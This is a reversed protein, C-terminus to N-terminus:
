PVVGKWETSKNGIATRIKPHTELPHQRPSALYPAPERAGVGAKENEQVINRRRKSCRHDCSAGRTGYDHICSRTHRTRKRKYTSIHIAASAPGLTGVM